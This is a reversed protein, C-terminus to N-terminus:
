DHISTPHDLECHSSGVFIKLSVHGSTPHPPKCPCGEMYRWDDVENKKHYGCWDNIESRPWRIDWELSVDLTWRSSWHREWFGWTARYPLDSEEEGRREGGIGNMEIEDDSLKSVTGERGTWKGRLLSCENHVESQCWFGRKVFLGSLRMEKARRRKRRGWLGAGAEGERWVGLRKRRVVTGHVLHRFLRSNWNTAGGWRHDLWRCLNLLWRPSEQNSWARRLGMRRRQPIWGLLLTPLIVQRQAPSSDPIGPLPSPTGRAMPPNHYHHSDIADAMSTQPPKNRTGRWPHWIDPSRRYPHSQLFSPTANWRHAPCRAPRSFSDPKPLYSHFHRSSLSLGDPPVSRAGGSVMKLHRPPIQSLPSPVLHSEVLLPSLAPPSPLLYSIVKPPLGHSYTVLFFARPRTGILGDWLSFFCGVSFGLFSGGSGDVLIICFCGIFGFFSGGLGDVLVMCLFGISVRSVGEM